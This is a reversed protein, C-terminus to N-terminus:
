MLIRPAKFSGSKQFACGMLSRQADKYLEDTLQLSTHPLRECFDAIESWDQRIEGSWLTHAECRRLGFARKM